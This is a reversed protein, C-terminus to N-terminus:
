IAGCKNELIFREWGDKEMEEAVKEIDYDCRFSGRGVMKGEFYENGWAEWVKFGRQITQTGDLGVLTWESNPEGYAHLGIYIEEGEKKLYIDKSELGLEQLTPTM